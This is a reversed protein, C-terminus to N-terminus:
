RLTIPVEGFYSGFTTNQFAALLPVGILVVYSIRLFYIESLSRFKVWPIWTLCVGDNCFTIEFWKCLKKVWKWKAPAVM